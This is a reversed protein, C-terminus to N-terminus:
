YSICRLLIAQHGLSMMNTYFHMFQAFNKIPIENNQYIEIMHTIWESQEGIIRWAEEIEENKLLPKDIGDILEVAKREIPKADICYSPLSGLFDKSDVNEKISVRIHIFPKGDKPHILFHYWNVIQKSRLISVVECVQLRIADVVKNFWEQHELFTGQHAQFVRPPIDLPIWIEWMRNLNPKQM